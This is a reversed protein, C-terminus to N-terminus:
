KCLKLITKAEMDISYEVDQRKETTNIPDLDWLPESKIKPMSDQKPKETPKNEQTNEQKVSIGENNSPSFPGSSLTNNESLSRNIRRFAM